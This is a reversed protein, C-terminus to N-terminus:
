DSETEDNVEKDIEANLLKETVALGKTLVSPVNYGCEVLNELVSRIENVLLCAITFWGILTLFMLDVKLLDRGLAIFVEAMMFAVAIIIWYGLKKVIGVLGAASSEKQLKRSKYWGTIWDFVNLILFAAFIYWHSGFIATMLTVIGGVIINYLDLVRTAENKM